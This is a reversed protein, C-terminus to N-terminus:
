WEEVARYALYCAVQEDNKYIQNLIIERMFSINPYLKTINAQNYNVGVINEVVNKWQNAVVVADPDLWKAVHFSKNSM